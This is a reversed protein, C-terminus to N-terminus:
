LTTEKKNEDKARLQEQSVDAHSKMEPWTPDERYPKGQKYFELQEIIRGALEKENTKSTLWLAKKATAVAEDFHGNAAWAAALTFLHGASRHNTLQAAKKALRLSEDANQVSPDPHTALFWSSHNLAPLYNSNLRLAERMCNLAAKPQGVKALTVGLNVRYQPRGPDIEVARRFLHIADSYQSPTKSLAVGLGNNPLAENPELALMRKYLSVSDRWYGLYRRTGVAEAGAFLLVCSTLLAGQVIPRRVVTKSQLLDLMWALLMLFGVSPLYAFKDAAIVISFSIVQMTPLIGVFFFLWCAIAARTWRLSIVLLAVLICTVVIGTLIEPHSLTMPQPFPYYQSLNVPWLIKYLYFVINHCLVLPIRGAGYENPLHVSATRAQSVYIIIAFVIGVGFLPLKEKVTARSLRKLPWYDMLLMLVPLPISTPKSMLAMVYMALFGWCAKSKGKRVFRVYLVLSWLAFFSTLVTKRDSIWAIPEVTMPHLGFLLGVGAAIWPQGFLMYILIVILATNFVHLLLSTRHFPMHNDPSGGLACDVMLSIMTLPQYYGKVSSPELVETIFRRFSNWGPNQVLLNSLLYQGDDVLLARASLVPLHTIFVLACAIILLTILIFKHPGARGPVDEARTQVTEPILRNDSDNINWQM